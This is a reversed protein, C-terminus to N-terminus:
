PQQFLYIRYGDPDVVEYSIGYPERMQERVDYGAARVEDAAADADEVRFNIAVGGSGPEPVSPSAEHLAFRVGDLDAESWHDDGTFELGLVGGYFERSRAVDRVFIHVNDLGSVLTMAARLM